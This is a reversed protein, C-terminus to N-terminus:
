KLAIANTIFQDATFKDVNRLNNGTREEKYNYSGWSYINLKDTSVVGGSHWFNLTTFKEGPEYEAFNTKTPSNPASDLANNSTTPLTAKMSATDNMGWLYLDGSETIAGNLNPNSNDTEIVKDNSNYLSDHNIDVEQPKGIGDHNGNGITGGANNGWSYLYNDESIANAMEDTVSIYKMKDNDDYKGDCNVDIISYKATEDSPQHCNNGVANTNAGSGISYLFGDENILFLSTLRKSISYSKVKGSYSANYSQSSDSLDIKVTRTTTTINHPIQPILGTDGWMYLYDDIGLAMVVSRSGNNIMSVEKYTNGAYPDGSQYIIDTLEVYHKTNSTTTNQDIVNSYNKGWGHLEGSESLIIGGYSSVSQAYMEVDTVKDGETKTPIDISIIEGSSDTYLLGNIDRAPEQVVNNSDDELHSKDINVFVPSLYYDMSKSDKANSYMYETTNKEPLVQSNGWMYLYGEQSIAFVSTDNMQDRHIHEIQKVKDGETITDLEGDDKINNGNEDYYSGDLNVFTPYPVYDDTIGLGLDGNLNWGWTYLYGESTIAYYSENRDANNSLLGVEVFPGSGITDVNIIEPLNQEDEEISSSTSEDNSDMIYLTTFTATVASIGLFSLTWIGLVKKDLTKWFRKLSLSLKKM